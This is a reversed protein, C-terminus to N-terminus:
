LHTMNSNHPIGTKNSIHQTCLNYWFNGFEVKWSTNLLVLFISGMQILLEIKTLSIIVRYYLGVKQCIQMQFIWNQSYLDFALEFVPFEYRLPYSTHHKMRLITVQLIICKTSPPRMCAGHNWNIRTNWVIKAVFNPEVNSLGPRKQSWQLEAM